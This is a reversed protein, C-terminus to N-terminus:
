FYYARFRNLKSGNPFGSGDLKLNFATKFPVEVPDLSSIVMASHNYVTLTTNELVYENSNVQCKFTYNGPAMALTSLKFM